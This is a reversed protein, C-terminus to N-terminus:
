TPPEIINISETKLTEKTGELMFPCLIVQASFIEINLFLHINIALAIDGGKFIGM